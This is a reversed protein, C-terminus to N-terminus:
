SAHEKLWSDFEANYGGVVDVLRRQQALGEFHTEPTFEEPAWQDELGMCSCHSGSAHFWKGDRRFVVTAYGEWPPTDYVAFVLDPETETKSLHFNSGVDAWNSFDGHYVRAETM